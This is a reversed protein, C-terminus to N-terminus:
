DHGGGTVITRVVRDRIMKHGTFRVEWRERNVTQHRFRVRRVALCTLLEAEGEEKDKTFPDAYIIVLDGKRLLSDM